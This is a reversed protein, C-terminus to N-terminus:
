PVCELDPNGEEPVDGPNGEEPLDGDLDINGDDLFNDLGLLTVITVTTQGTEGSKKATM